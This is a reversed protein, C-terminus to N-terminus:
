YGFIGEEKTGCDVFADCTGHLWILWSIKTVEETVDVSGVLRLGDELDVLLHM